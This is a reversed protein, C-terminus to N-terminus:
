GPYRGPKDLRALTLVAGVGLARGIDQADEVRGKYRFVTSRAMVGLEPLQSLSLILSDTLGDSLYEMQFDASANAFPLVALSRIADRYEASRVSAGIPLAARGSDM